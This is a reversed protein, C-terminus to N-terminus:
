RVFEEYGVVVDVVSNKTHFELSFYLAHEGM